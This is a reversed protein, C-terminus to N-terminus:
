SAMRDTGAWGSRAVRPRLHEIAQDYSARVRAAAAATCTQHEPDLLVLDEPHIFGQSASETGLTTLAQLTRRTDAAPVRHTGAQNLIDADLELLARGVTCHIRRFGTHGPLLKAVTRPALDAHAAIIRWHLGTDSLLRALHDRFPAQDFWLESPVHDTSTM